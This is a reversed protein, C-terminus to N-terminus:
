NARPNMFVDVEDWLDRTHKVDREYQADSVTREAKKMEFEHKVEQYFRLCEAREKRGIFKWHFNLRDRVQMAAQSRGHGDLILGFLHTTYRQWSGMHPNGEYAAGGRHEKIKPKKKRRLVTRAHYARGPHTKEESDDEFHDAVRRALKAILKELPGAM